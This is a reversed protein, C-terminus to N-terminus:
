EWRGDGLFVSEDARGALRWGAFSAVTGTVLLSLSAGLVLSGVYIGIAKGRQSSDFREAVLKLGPMYTGGMGIGTLARLVMASTYDHAYLAFLLNAIGSWIASIIFINALDSLLQPNPAKTRIM